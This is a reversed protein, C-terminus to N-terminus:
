GVTIHPNGGCKSCRPVFVGGGGYEIDAGCCGSKEMIVGGRFKRPNSKIHDSLIQGMRSREGKKKLRRKSKSIKKSM